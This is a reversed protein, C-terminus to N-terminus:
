PARRAVLRLTRTPAPVGGALEVTVGVGAGRPVVGSLPVVAETGAFVAASGVVRNERGIHWAQYAEGAPAPELGDLVLVGRGGPGVALVLAGASGSLPIRETTPRALLAIARETTSDVAPAPPAAPPGTRRAETVFALGGLVLAGVGSLVALVALTTGAPRRPPPLAVPELVRVSWEPPDALAHLSAPGNQEVESASLRVVDM